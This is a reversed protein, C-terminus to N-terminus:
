IMCMAYPKCIIHRAILLINVKAKESGHVSIFTVSFPQIGIARLKYPIIFYLQLDNRKM